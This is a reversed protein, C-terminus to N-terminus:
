PTRQPHILSPQILIKIHKEPQTQLAHIADSFQELSYHATVLPELNIQETELLDMADTFDQPVYNRSVVLSLERRYLLPFDVELSTQAKPTAVLVLTGGPLLSNIGANVTAKSCVTDYILDFESGWNKVLADPELFDPSCFFEEFGLQACVERRQELRDVLAVRTAGMARAVLATLLGIVGAGIVIVRSGPKTQGRNNVHVAVATPEILAGHAHRLSKPVCLLQDARVLMKEAFCGSDLDIGLVRFTPCHNIRGEKCACCTGCGVSPYVTVWTGPELNVNPGISEIMGICEHGPIIPFKGISNNGAILAVDNACVGAAFIRIVVEGHGPTPDPTEILHITKPQPLSVAKV